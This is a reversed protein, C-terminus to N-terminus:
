KVGKSKIFLVPIGILLGIAIGFCENIVYCITLLIYMSVTLIWSKKNKLTIDYIRKKIAFAQFLLAALLIICAVCAAGINESNLGNETLIILINFLSMHLFYNFRRLRGSPAFPNNNYVIDAEKISEDENQLNELNITEETENKIENSNM